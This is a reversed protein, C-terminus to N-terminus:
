REVEGEVDAPFCVSGLVEPPREPGDSAGPISRGGTEGPATAEDGPCAVLAGTALALAAARSIRRARGPGDRFVTRGAGDLVFRLCVRESSDRTMQEAEARTLADSSTVHLRCEDCYRRGGAGELSQWTRPCPTRIELENRRDDM